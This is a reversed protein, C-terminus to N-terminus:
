GNLEVAGNILVAKILAAGPNPTGNKVLTERIVACCGTVLPTAMSTGGSYMFKPDSSEGWSKTDTARASLTSLICTGSTIV